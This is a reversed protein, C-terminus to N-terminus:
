SPILISCVHTSTCTVKEANEVQPQTRKPLTVSPETTVQRDISRRTRKKPIYSLPLSYPAATRKKRKKKRKVPKKSGRTKSRAEILNFFSLGISPM